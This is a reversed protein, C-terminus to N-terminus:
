MRATQVDHRCRTHRCRKSLSQIRVCDAYLIGSIFLSAFKSCSIHSLIGHICFHGSKRCSIDVLMKLKQLTRQDTDEKLEPHDSGCTRSNLLLLQNLWLQLSMTLLWCLISEQLHGEQLLMMLLLPQPPPLLLLLPLLLLFLLLYKLNQHLAQRGGNQHM